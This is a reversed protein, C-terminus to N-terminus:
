TVRSHSLRLTPQRSTADGASALQRSIKRLGCGHRSATPSTRTFNKAQIGTCPEHDILKATSQSRRTECCSRNVLANPHRYQFGFGVLIVCRRIFLANNRVGLPRPKIGHDIRAKSINGPANPVQQIFTWDRLHTPDLYFSVAVLYKQLTSHSAEIGFLHSLFGNASSSAIQM